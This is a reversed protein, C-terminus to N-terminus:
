NISYYYYVRFLPLNIAPNRSAFGSQRVIFSYLLKGHSYTHKTNRLAEIEEIPITWLHCPTIAQINTFSPLHLFYGICDTFFLNDFLYQYIIKHGKEYYSYRCLIGKVIFAVKTVPNGTKIFFEKKKLWVSEFLSAIFDTESQDLSALPPLLRAISISNDATM